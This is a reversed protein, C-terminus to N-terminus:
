IKKRFEIFSTGSGQNHNPCVVFVSMATRVRMHHGYTSLNSQTELKFSGLVTPKIM